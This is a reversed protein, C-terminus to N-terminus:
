LYRSRGAALSPMLVGSQNVVLYHVCKWLMEQVKPFTDSEMVCNEFEMDRGHKGHCYSRQTYGFVNVHVLGLTM